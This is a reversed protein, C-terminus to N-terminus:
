IAGESTPLEWHKVGEVARLNLSAATIAEEGIQM